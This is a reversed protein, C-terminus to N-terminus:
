TDIKALESFIEHYDVTDFKAGIVLTNNQRASGGFEPHPYYSFLLKNLVFLNYVDLSKKVPESFIEQYMKYHGAISMYVEANKEETCYISNQENLRIDTVIESAQELNIKLGEMRSDNYIYENQFVCRAYDTPKFSLQLQYCDILDAYLKTYTMHLRKREKDPGFKRARKVLEAAKTKGPIAQILYAIRFLCAQFSVGFFDAIELVDNMSITGNSNKRENVQVRLEAIPMLLAAAFDEAFREISNKSGILCSIQKDADRFHHCLEHAASFRQRTIPRNANIGVTPVDDTSSAPIYVGELNKFDMLVFLINEDKLMRFPNIPYEIKQNGFYRMLYAAAMKEADTFTKAETWHEM